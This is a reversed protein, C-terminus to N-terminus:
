IIRAMEVWRALASWSVLGRAGGGHALASDGDGAGELVALGASTLREVHEWQWGVNGLVGIKGLGEAM